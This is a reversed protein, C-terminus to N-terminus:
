CCLVKARVWSCGVAALGVVEEQQPERVKAPPQERYSAM